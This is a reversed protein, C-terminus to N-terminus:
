VVLVGFEPNTYEMFDSFRSSSMRMARTESSIRPRQMGKM